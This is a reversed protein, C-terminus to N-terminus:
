AVSFGYGSLSNPPCFSLFSVIDGTNKPEIYKKQREYNLHPIAFVGQDDRIVPLSKCTDLARCGLWSLDSVAKLVIWDADNFPRLWTKGVARTLGQDFTIKFRNDWYIQDLPAVALPDPLNRRERLIQLQDKNRLVRCGGLSGAHLASNEVGSLQSFLANSKASTPEYQRGGVAALVRSMVKGALETPGNALQTLNVTAAGLPTINVSASILKAINHNRLVRAAGFEAATSSLEQPDLHEKAIHNRVAIREFADNLNSPDELWEIGNRNLYDRLEARTTKLLPRMLRSMPLELIQSMGALGDTGSAHRKRMLHTEAQDDRTHATVLHLLNHSKCWGDMLDYRANRAASMIGSTPKEGQWKLINHKIGMDEAWGAVTQTETLSASRLGHDVTVARLRMDHSRAWYAALHLLAVSDGGGSLAIAIEAKTEYPSFVRMAQSFRRHLAEDNVVVPMLNPVPVANANEPLPM